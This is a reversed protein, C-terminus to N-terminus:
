APPQAERHVLGARLVNVTGVTDAYASHDCSLCHFKERTPRNGVSVHGGQPCTRSTNGADVAIVEQGASEAKAPLVTLFVGWGADNISRNLGAKAAVGHNATHDEAKRRPFRSLAQQAAQLKAAAKGRPRAPDPSSGM